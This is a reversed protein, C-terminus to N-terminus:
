RRRWGRGYALEARGAAELAVLADRVTGVDLDPLKAAIHGFPAYDRPTAAHVANLTKTDV